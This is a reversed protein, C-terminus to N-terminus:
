VISWGKMIPTGTSQKRLLISCLQKENSAFCSSRIAMCYLITTYLVHFAAKIIDSNRRCLAVNSNLGIAMCDDVICANQM